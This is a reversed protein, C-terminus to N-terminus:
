RSLDNVLETAIDEELSNENIKKGSEDVIDFLGEEQSAKLSYTHKAVNAPQTPNQQTPKEPVKELFIISDRFAEPIEEPYALFIQNPKIIRNGLQFSGGGLKQCRVQKAVPEAPAESIIPDAVPAKTEKTEVVPSKATTAETEAPTVKTKRIM